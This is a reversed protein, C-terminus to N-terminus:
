CDCTYECETYQTMTETPCWPCDTVCFTHISCGWSAGAVGKLQGQELGRLTERSLTLKKAKKKM